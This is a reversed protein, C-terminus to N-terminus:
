LEGTACCAFCVTARPPSRTTSTGAKESTSDVREPRYRSSTSGCLRNGRAGYGRWRRMSSRRPRAPGGRRRLWTSCTFRPAAQRQHLTNVSSSVSSRTTSRPSSSSAPRTASPANGTTAPESTPRPRSSAHAWSIATARVGRTSIRRCSPRFTTPRRRAFKCARQMARLRHVDAWISRSSRM